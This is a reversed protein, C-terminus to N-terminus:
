MGSKRMHNMKMDEIQHALKKNDERVETLETQLKGNYEQHTTNIEQASALTGELEKIKDQLARMEPSNIGVAKVISTEGEATRVKEKLKKNEETLARFELREEDFFNVRTDNEFSRDNDFDEPKQMVMQKFGKLRVNEEIQESLEMKVKQLERKYEDIIIQM